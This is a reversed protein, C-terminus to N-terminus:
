ITPLLLVNRTCPVLLSIIRVTLFLKCVSLQDPKLLRKGQWFTSLKILNRTDKKVVHGKDIARTVLLAHCEDLFIFAM